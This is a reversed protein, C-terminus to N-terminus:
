PEKTQKTSPHTHLSTGSSCSAPAVETGHTASQEGTNVHTTKSNVMISCMDKVVEGSQKDAVQAANHAPHQLQLMEPVHQKHTTDCVACQM